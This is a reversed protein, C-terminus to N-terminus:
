TRAARGREDEYTDGVVREESRLSAAAVAASDREPALALLLLLPFPPAPAPSISTPPASAGTSPPNSAGGRFGPETSAPVALAM